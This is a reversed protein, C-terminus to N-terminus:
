QISLIVAPRPSSEKRRGGGREQEWQEDVADAGGREGRRGRRGGEM